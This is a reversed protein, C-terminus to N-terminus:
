APKALPAQTGQCQEIYALISDGYYKTGNFHGQQLGRAPDFHGTNYVIGLQALEVNTLSARASWAMRQLGRRLEGICYALTQAFQAYRQQLFWDPDDLFFQLDRQFIGFAHCFKDPNAAVGKYGQIHAAMDVLAQHAIAFMQAGNPKSLLDGKDRPFAKRGKSADLTDGVCLALIQAEPLGQRCLVPWVDGTEQCAVATIFDLTLPTGAIAPVIRSGFQTKFWLIDANTPM